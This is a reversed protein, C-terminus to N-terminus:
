TLTVTKDVGSPDKFHLTGDDKVWLCGWGTQDGSTGPFTAREHMGYVGNLMFYGRWATSQDAPMESDGYMGGAQQNCNHFVHQRGKIFTPDNGIEGGYSIYEYRGGAVADWKIKSHLVANVAGGGSVKREYIDDVNNMFVHNSTISAGGAATSTFKRNALTGKVDLAVSPAGGIGIGFMDTSGNYYFNSDTSVINGSVKINGTVDIAETPAATQFGVGSAGLVVGNALSAHQLVLNHAAATEIYNKSADGWIRVVKGSASSIDLGNVNTDAAGKISLASTPTIATGNEGIGVKGTDDLTVIVEPDGGASTVTKTSLLLKGKGNGATRQAIVSGGVETTATDNSFAIGAYGYGDVRRAVHLQYNASDSLNSDPTKATRIDLSANPTNAAVDCILLKDQVATITGTASVNTRIDIKQDAPTSDHYFLISGKSVGALDFVIDSRHATTGADLYITATGASDLRLDATAGEIELLNAPALTGIGVRDLGISLAYDVAQGDEIFKCASAALGTTGTNSNDVSLLDVYKDKIPTDHLAM